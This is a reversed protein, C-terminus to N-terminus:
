HQKLWITSITGSLSKKSEKAYDFLIRRRNRACLYCNFKGHFSEPQMQFSLISFPVGLIKFFHEIDTRYAPSLPHEKWEIMVGELDYRIPLHKRRLSLAMAMALSDKGGSIGAIVKDGDGIMKHENIGRGTEKVFRHIRPPINGSFIEKLQSFEAM